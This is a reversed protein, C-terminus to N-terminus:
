FIGCNLFIGFNWFEFVRVNLCRVSQGRDGRHLKGRRQVGRPGGERAVKGVYAQRLRARERGALHEAAGRRRAETRRNARISRKRRRRNDTHAHTLSFTFAKFPLNLNVDVNTSRFALRLLVIAADLCTSRLSLLLIM